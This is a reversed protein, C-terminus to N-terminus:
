RAHNTLRKRKRRNLAADAFQFANQGLVAAGVRRLRNHGGVGDFLFPRHLGDDAALGHGDAADGLAAAHNVDVHASREGKDRGVRRNGGVHQVFGQERRSVHAVVHHAHVAVGGGVVGEGNEGGAVCAVRFDGFLVVIVVGKQLHECRRELRNGLLKGGVTFARGLEQNALYVASGVFLRCLHYGLADNTGREDLRRHEASVGVAASDEAGDAIAAGVHAVHVFDVDGILGGCAFNQNALVAASQRKVFGLRLLDEEFAFDGDQNM